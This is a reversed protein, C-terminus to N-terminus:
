AVFFTVRGGLLGMDFALISISVFNSFDEDLFLEMHIFHLQRKTGQPGSFSCIM